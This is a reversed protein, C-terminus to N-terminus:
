LNTSNTKNEKKCKMRTNRLCSVIVICYNISSNDIRRQVKVLNTIITNKLRGDPAVNQSSLKLAILKIPWASLLM